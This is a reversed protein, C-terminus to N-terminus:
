PFQRMQKCQTETAIVGGTTTTKSTCTRTPNLWGGNRMLAYVLLVLFLGVVLIPRLRHNRRPQAREHTQSRRRKTPGEDYWWSREPM